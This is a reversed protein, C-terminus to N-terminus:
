GRWEKAREQLLPHELWINILQDAETLHNLYLQIQWPRKRGNNRRETKRDCYGLKQIQGTIKKRLMKKVKRTGKGEHSCPRVPFLVHSQRM